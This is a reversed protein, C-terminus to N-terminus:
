RTSTKEPKKREKGSVQVARHELRTHAKFTLIACGLPGKSSRRPARFFSRTFHDTFFTEGPRGTVETRFDELFFRVALWYIYPRATDDEVDEEDTVRRKPVLVLVPQVRLDLSSRVVYAVALM